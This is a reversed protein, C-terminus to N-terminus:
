RLDLCVLKKLDRVLLRGDAVVPATWSTGSIPKIRGLERYRERSLELMVVDGKKGNIAIITGDVAVLGGWEFSGGKWVTSGDAFEVCHFAGGQGGTGYVRGEHCVPTNFKSQIAKNEWLKKPGGPTVEIVACGERYDSTIFVRNGMVIPTAGNIDYKTRWEYRWLVDGKAAGVARLGEAVFLVYQKTGNITCVVPTAYSPKGKGGGQWIVKGTSKNLVAVMGRSGGPLIVLREGDIIPSAAYHWRPIAGGLDRVMNVSWIKRGDRADLCLVEGMRGTTYVRGGEYTPTSRTFGHDQKGKDPFPCRWLEGGKELDFARVLGNGDAYDVIFVKGEAVSPGSYGNDSLKVTWLEKPPRANWDKNIGTEGSMGDAGGGLFRPWGKAPGAPIAVPAPAPAPEM